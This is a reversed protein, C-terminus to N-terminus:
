KQKAVYEIVEKKIQKAIKKGAKLQKGYKKILKAAMKEFDKPDFGKVEALVKKLMKKIDDQHILVQNGGALLGLAAGAALGLIM